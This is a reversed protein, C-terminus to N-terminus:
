CCSATWPLGIPKLHKYAELLFHRAVGSSHLAELSAKGAPVWVGDFMVSPMGEMAADVPLLQGDATKVPASTPGLLV